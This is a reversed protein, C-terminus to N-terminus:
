SVLFDGLEGVIFPLKDDGLDQRFRVILERLKALHVKAAEPKSDSEGQHWIIGKMVGSQMAVRARRIADDYPHSKTQDHYAGETWSFIPSGGAACPIVGIRVHKKYNAMARGFAYGPGVGAIRPKDFHLPETAPEWEDKQNLAFVRPHPRMDQEEVEGRGAMNSQGALLYLHFEQRSSYQQSCGSNFLTFTLLVLFRLRRM